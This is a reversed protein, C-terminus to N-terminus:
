LRVVVLTLTRQWWGAQPSVEFERAHHELLIDDGGKGALDVGIGMCVMDMGYGDIRVLFSVDRGIIEADVEPVETDAILAKTLEGIM